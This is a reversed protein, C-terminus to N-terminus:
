VGYQNKKIKATPSVKHTDASERSDKSTLQKGTLGMAKKSKNIIAQDADTYALTVMQNAVSSISKMDQDAPSGAMHVGFRYMNYYHAPLEPYTEMGKVVAEHHAHVKSTSGGTNGPADANETIIDIIKM